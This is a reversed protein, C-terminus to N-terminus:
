PADPTSTSTALDAKILELAKTKEEGPATEVDPKVGVGEWGQETRPAVVMKVPIFARMGHGLDVISGAIGAGATTQGVITARKLRQMAYAFGETASATRNNVLIYVKANPLRKGPVYSYTWEQIDKSRDKHFGNLYFQEDGTGYFYSAFLRGITGSGGPNNRIDIIVYKAHAALGMANVVADYNDQDEGWAGQSQIYASALNKDLEVTEISTDEGAPKAGHGAVPPARFRSECYVGLHVDKHTARLEETLKKGFDCHDLGEYRNSRAADALTRAYRKSLDPFPYGKVLERSLTKMVERADADSLVPDQAHAATMAVLTLSALLGAIFTYPRTRLRTM